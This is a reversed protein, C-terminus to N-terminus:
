ITASKRTLSRRQNGVLAVTTAVVVAASKLRLLLLKFLLFLGLKKKWMHCEAPTFGFVLAIEFLLLLHLLVVM